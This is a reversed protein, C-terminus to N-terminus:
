KENLYYMLMKMHFNIREKYHEALTFDMSDESKKLTEIDLGM